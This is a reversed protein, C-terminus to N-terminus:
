FSRHHYVSLLATSVFLRKFLQRHRWSPCDSEEHQFLSMTFNQKRNWGKRKIWWDWNWVNGVYLRLLCSTNSRLILEASDHKWLSQLRLLDGVWLTFHHYAENGVHPGARNPVTQDRYESGTPPADARCRYICWRCLPVTLSWYPHAMTTLEDNFEPHKSEIILRNDPNEFYRKEDNLTNKEWEM